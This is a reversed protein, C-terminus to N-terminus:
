GLCGWSYEILAETVSGDPKPSVLLMLADSSEAQRTAHGQGSRRRLVGVKEARYLFRDMLTPEVDEMNMDLFPLAANDGGRLMRRLHARPALGGNVARGAWRSWWREPDKQLVERRAEAIERGRQSKGKHRAEAMLLKQSETAGRLAARGGTPTPEIARAQQLTNEPPLITLRNAPRLSPTGEAPQHSRLQQEPLLPARAPRFNFSPNTDSDNTPPLGNIHSDDEADAFTWATAVVLGPTSTSIM